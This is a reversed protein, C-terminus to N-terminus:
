LRGAHRCVLSGIGDRGHPSGNDRAAVIRKKAIRRLRQRDLAVPDHDAAVAHDLRDTGGRLECRLQPRFRDCGIRAAQDNRAEDVGMHVIRLGAHDRRRAPLQEVPELVVGIHGLLGERIGRMRPAHRIGEAVLEQAVARGNSAAARRLM